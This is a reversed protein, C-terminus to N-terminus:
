KSAAAKAAKRTVGHNGGRKSASSSSRAAQGEGAGASASGAASSDSSVSEAAPAATVAAAPAAKRSAKSAASKPVAVSAVPWSAGVANAITLQSQEGWMRFSQVEYGNGAGLPGIGPGITLSELVGPISSTVNGDAGVPGFLGDVVTNYALEYNGAGLATLTQKAIEVVANVTAKVTGVSTAVLGKAIGPLAVLVNTLNTIVNSVVYTGAGVLSGVATELPVIIANNLTALAGAIDGGFVQKTATILAGPLNWVGESLTYASFNLADLSNYIYDTGNYGLRSIIPLATYIFEPLMGAYPEWPYNADINALSGDFLDYNVWSLTNLAESIPSDFGVLAVRAVSPVSITSLPAATVPTMAIASAGVVAATGAILQSRLSIQM